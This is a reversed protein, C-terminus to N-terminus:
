ISRTRKYEFYKKCTKDFLTVQYQMVLRLIGFRKEVSTALPCKGKYLFSFFGTITENDCDPLYIHTIIKEPKSFLLENFVPSSIALLYKHAYLVEGSQNNGFTLRIDSTVSNNYMYKNREVLTQSQWTTDSSETIITFSMKWKRILLVCIIPVILCLLSWFWSSLAMM